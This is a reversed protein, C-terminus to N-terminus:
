LLSELLEEVLDVGSVGLGEELGWQGVFGSGFLEVVDELEEVGGVFEVVGEGVKDVVGPLVEDLVLEPRGCIM